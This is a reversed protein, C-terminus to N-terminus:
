TLMQQDFQGFKNIDDGHEKDKDVKRGHKHLPPQYRPFSVRSALSKEGWSLLKIVSALDPENATFESDLIHKNVMGAVKERQSQSLLQRIHPPADTAQAYEESEPSNFALLTLAMELSPLLSPITTALHSLTNQAFSLAKTTDKIRIYEILQQLQIQFLLETNQDLIDPNIENILNIAPPIDGSRIFDKIAKRDKILNNSADLDIGTETSFQDAADTYGEIVLYNLVLKNLQGKSLNLQSLKSSWSETSIANSQQNVPKYFFNYTLM